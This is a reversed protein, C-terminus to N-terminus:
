WGQIVTFMGWSAPAVAQGVTGRWRVPVACCHAQIVGGWGGATFALASVVGAQLPNALEDIDIGLEDRAHARIVDKETLQEAVRRALDRDLGRSVYIQTLEQPRRTHVSM